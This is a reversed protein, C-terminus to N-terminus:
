VLDDGSSLSVAPKSSGYGSGRAAKRLETGPLQQCLCGGTDGPFSVQLVTVQYGM